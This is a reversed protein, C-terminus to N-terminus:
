KVQERRHIIEYPRRSEFDDELGETIYIGNADTVFIVEFGEHDRWYESGKELGMVYLATSLGDALTGDKSVVTVSIVGSKAPFGTAPDIIHHYTEGNEEFFRQYGGSTIVASDTLRVSGLYADNDTPDQVAINWEDGNPKSGLMEVNGGLSVIGSRVGHEKYIEMIRSSLYGKAIGGLDLKSGNEVTILTGNVTINKYNVKELAAKLENEDPVRYEKTYFGWIDMVPAVTIDFAGDTSRCINVAKETLEAVTDSAEYIGETNVKYIESDSSGRRLMKDLRNIEERAASVAAEGDPGYAKLTMETDMAFVVASHEESPETEAGKLSNLGCGSMLAACLFPIAFLRLKM